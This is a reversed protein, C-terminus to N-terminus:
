PQFQGSTWGRLPSDTLTIKIQHAAATLEQTKLILEPLDEPNCRYELLIRYPDHIQHLIAMVRGESSRNICSRVVYTPSVAIRSLEIFNYRDQVFPANEEGRKIVHYTSIGQYKLAMATEVDADWV